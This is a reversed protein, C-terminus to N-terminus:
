PYRLIQSLGLSYINSYFQKYYCYSLINKGKGESGLEGFGLCHQASHVDFFGEDRLSVANNGYSQIVSCLERYSLHM